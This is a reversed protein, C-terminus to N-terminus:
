WRIQRVVRHASRAYMSTPHTCAVLIGRWEPKSTYNHHTPTAHMAHTHIFMRCWTIPSVRSSGSNRKRERERERQTEKERM